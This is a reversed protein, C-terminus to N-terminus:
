VAWKIFVIAGDETVPASLDDGPKVTIVVGGIPYRVAPIFETV